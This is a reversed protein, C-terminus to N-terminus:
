TTLRTFGDESWDDSGVMHHAFFLGDPDYRRKIRALRPYNSGWFARRWDSEFYDSESVYSAPVKLLARLPAAAARIQAARLRGETVHPQHGPIGPYSPEGEAGLIALAFADLVAPNTATDRAAAVVDATAGALGKNLHLSVKWISASNALADVLSPRSRNDLLEAPLWISAYGHVVQAVQDGDGAWYINDPSAGPRTDTAITGPITRLFDPNWADRMPASIITVDGLTLETSRSRVAAFFENWIATARARNIGQFETRIQMVNKPRFIIQEGWHPTLLRQRCFDLALEILRAFAEPDTAKIDANVVGAEAPLAHTRLTLRTIIGFSSGGGGKLAWFLDPENCRNVTRIRGDATVVEAEILGAAATGFRKSYTGFGGSSVLGAVGVTSCGGGQVYRGAKTTVASYAEQWICGAGVTVSPGESHASGQPVFSEHLHIDTLRRTWVLLSDPANSTGQYSHGGGKVVLRLKHQRAFQVAAAVDEAGSVAVAYASPKSTWADIWGLSQTLAPDDRVLYPNTIRKFLADCQTQDAGAACQQLASVPRILRGGVEASLRAWEPQGPWGAQGPRLRREANSSRAFLNYSSPLAFASAALASKLISRRDM